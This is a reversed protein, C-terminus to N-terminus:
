VMHQQPSVHKETIFGKPKTHSLSIQSTHKQPVNNKKIKILSSVLGPLSHNLFFAGPPPGSASM